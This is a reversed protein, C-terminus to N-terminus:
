RICRHKIKSSELTSLIIHFGEQRNRVTEENQIQHFDKLDKYEKPYYEELIEFVNIFEKPDERKNREQEHIKELLSKTEEFTSLGRESVKQQVFLEQRANIWSRLTDAVVSRSTRLDWAAAEIVAGFKAEPSDTATQDTAAIADSRVKRWESPELSKGTMEAKHLEMVCALAVRLPHTASLFSLDKDTEELFRSLVLNGYQDLDVGVPLAELLSIQAAKADEASPQMIAIMDLLLAVWKPLAFERTWQDLDEGGLLSGVLSGSKGDWYVPRNSWNGSTQFAKAKHLMSRKLEPNDQFSQM